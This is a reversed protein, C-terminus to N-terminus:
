RNEGAAARAAATELAHWLSGAASRMGLVTVDAANRCLVFVGLHEIGTRFAGNSHCHAVDINVLKELLPHLTGKTTSIDIVVWGDTQETVSCGPAEQSLTAAFDTQAADKAGIMWQGPASWFAFYDGEQVLGGPGPLTLGMPSPEAADRRLALSALAVDPRESLTLAGLRAIRPGAAGLATIPTLDTM